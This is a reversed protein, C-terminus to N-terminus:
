MGGMEYIFFKCMIHNRSLLLFQFYDVFRWLFAFPIIKIIRNPFNLNYCSRKRAFIERFYNVRTTTHIHKKKSQRRAFHHTQSTPHTCNFKQPNALAQSPTGQRHRPFLLPSSFLCRGESSFNLHLSLDLIHQTNCSRKLNSNARRNRIWSSISKREVRRKEFSMYLVGMRAGGFNFQMCSPMEFTDSQQAHFSFLMDMSSQNRYTNYNCKLRDESLNFPLWLQGNM